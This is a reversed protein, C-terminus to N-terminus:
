PVEIVIIRVHSAFWEKQLEITTTTAEEPLDEDVVRLVHQLVSLNGLAAFGTPGCTM